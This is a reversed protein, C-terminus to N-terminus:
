LSVLLTPTSGILAINLAWRSKTKAWHNCVDVRGRVLIAFSANPRQEFPTFTTDFMYTSEVSGLLQNTEAQMEKLVWWFGSGSTASHAVKKEVIM